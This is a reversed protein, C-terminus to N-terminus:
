RLYMKVKKTRSIKTKKKKNSSRIHQQTSRSKKDFELMRRNQTVMNQEHVSYSRSKCSLNFLIIIPLIYKM